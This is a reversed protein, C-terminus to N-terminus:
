DNLVKCNLVLERNRSEVNVPPGVVELVQSRWVLRCGSTVDARYRLRVKYTIEANVQQAAYFERGTLPLVAARVTAVETWVDVEAGRASRTPANREIRVTERYARM